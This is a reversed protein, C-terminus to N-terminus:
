GRYVPNKGTEERFKVMTPTLARNWPTGKKYKIDM